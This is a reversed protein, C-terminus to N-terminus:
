AEPARRRAHIAFTGTARSVLVGDVTLSSELSATTRGRYVLSSRCEVEGGSVPRFYAIKVEITSCAEHPELTPYLAVGMGTDALTFLVAGHAVGHLNRHHPQMTLTLLSTGSGTEVIRAGVHEVFLHSM